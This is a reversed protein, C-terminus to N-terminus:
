YNLYLLLHSFSRIPSCFFLPQLVCSTEMQSLQLKNDVSLVYHM